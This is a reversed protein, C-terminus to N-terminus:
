EHNQFVQPNFYHFFRDTCNQEIMQLAIAVEDVGVFKYLYPLFNHHHGREILKNAIQPHLDEINHFKELYEPLLSIWCDDRLMKMVIERHLQEIEPTKDLIGM